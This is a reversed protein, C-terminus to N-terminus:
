EPAGQNNTQPQKPTSKNTSEWLFRKKLWFGSGSKKKKKKSKLM